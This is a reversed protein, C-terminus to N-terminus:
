ESELCFSVKRERIGLEEDEYVMIKGSGKVYGEPCFWFEPLAGEFVVSTEVEQVEQARPLARAGFERMTQSSLIAVSVLLTLFYIILKRKM